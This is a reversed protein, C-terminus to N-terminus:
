APADARAERGDFALGHQGDGPDFVHHRHELADLVPQEVVDVGDLGVGALATAEARGQQGLVVMHGGAAPLLARVATSM